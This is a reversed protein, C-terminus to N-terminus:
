SVAEQSVQSSQSTLIQKGRLKELDEDVKIFVSNLKRKLSEASSGSIDLSSKGLGSSTEGALVNASV